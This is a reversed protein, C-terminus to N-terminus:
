PMRWEAVRQPLPLSCIHKVFFEGRDTTKYGSVSSDGELLQLSCLEARQEMVAPSDAHCADGDSYPKAITYYHLLMKIQLPTM